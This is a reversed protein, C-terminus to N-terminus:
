PGSCGFISRLRTIIINSDVTDFSAPLDLLSLVFVVM